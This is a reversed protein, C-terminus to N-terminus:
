TSKLVDEALIKLHQYEPEMVDASVLVHLLRPLYATVDELDHEELTNSILKPLIETAWVEGTDPWYMVYASSLWEHETHQFIEALYEPLMESYEIGLQSQSSFTREM